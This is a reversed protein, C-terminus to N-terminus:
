VMSISLGSPMWNFELTLLYHFYSRAYSLVFVIFYTERYPMRAGSDLSHARQREWPSSLTKLSLCELCHVSLGRKSM